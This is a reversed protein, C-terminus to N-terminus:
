VKRLGWVLVFLVAAACIAALIGVDNSFTNM